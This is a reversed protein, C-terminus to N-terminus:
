TIKIRKYIFWPLSKLVLSIIGWWTPFYGIKQSYNLNNVIYKAVRTPDAKPLLLNKGFTMPTDVYGLNYFQIKVKKSMAYLHMLSEFYQM